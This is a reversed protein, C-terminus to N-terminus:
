SAILSRLMWATKEHLQLRQTLLDATAMDKANDVAPLIERVMKALSEHGALITATMATANPINKEGTNPTSDLLNQPVFFGLARIREAIVDTVTWLETYQQEFLLHLTQFQPGTVNWHFNHTTFYLAYTNALFHILAQAIHERDADNIGINISSANSKQM